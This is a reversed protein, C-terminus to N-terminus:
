LVSAADQLTTFFDIRHRRLYEAAEEMMAGGLLIPFLPKKWPRELLQVIRLTDTM